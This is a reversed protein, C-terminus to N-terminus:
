GSPRRLHREAWHRFAQRKEEMLPTGCIPPPLPPDLVLELLLPVYEEISVGQAAAAEQLRTALQPTLTVTITM